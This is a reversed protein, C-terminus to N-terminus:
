SGHAAGGISSVAASQRPQELAPLLVVVGGMGQEDQMEHFLGFFIGDHAMPAGSLQESSGLSSSVLWCSLWSM